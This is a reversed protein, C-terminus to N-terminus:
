IQLINYILSLFKTLNVYKLSRNLKKEITIAKIAITKSYDLLFTKLLLIQFIGVEQHHGECALCIGSGRREPNNCGKCFFSCFSIYLECKGRRVWVFTYM